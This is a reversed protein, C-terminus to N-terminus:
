SLYNKYNRFKGCFINVIDVKYNNSLNPTKMQPFDELTKQEM